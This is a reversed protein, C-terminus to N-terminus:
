SPTLRLAKTLWSAAHEDAPIFREYDSSVTDTAVLRLSVPSNAAPPVARRIVVEELWPYTHRAFCRSGSVGVWLAWCRRPLTRGLDLSVEGSVCREVFWGLSADTAQLDQFARAWM